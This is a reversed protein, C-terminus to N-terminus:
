PDIQYLDRNPSMFLPLFIIAVLLTVSALKSASTKPELLGTKTSKQASHHPGQLCIAGAKSSIESSNPSTVIAFSLMSSFGIAGEFNPTLPIGVIINNLFPSATAVLTPAWGLVAMISHILLEIESHDM